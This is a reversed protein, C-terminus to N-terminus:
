IRLGNKRCTEVFFKIKGVYKYGSRDFVVNDIKKKKQKKQFKILLKQLHM